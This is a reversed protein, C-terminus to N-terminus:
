QEMKMEMFLEERNKGGPIEQHEDYDVFYM